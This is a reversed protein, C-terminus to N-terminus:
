PSVDRPWVVYPLLGCAFTRGVDSTRVGEPTISTWVQRKRSICYYVEFTCGGFADGRYVVGANEETAAKKAEQLTM